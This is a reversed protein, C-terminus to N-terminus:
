KSTFLLMLCANIFVIDNISGIYFHSLLSFLRGITWTMGFGLLGVPVKYRYDMFDMIHVFSTIQISIFCLAIMFWLSVELFNMFYHDSQSDVKSTILTVLVFILGFIKAHFSAGKKVAVLAPALSGIILGAFFAFKFETTFKNMKIKNNTDNDPLFPLFMFSNSVANSAITAIIFLAQRTVM